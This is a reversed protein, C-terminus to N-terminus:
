IMELLIVIFFFFYDGIRKKVFNGFIRSKFFKRISVFFCISIIVNNVFDSLYWLVEDKEVWKWIIIGEILGISNRILFFKRMFVKNSLM